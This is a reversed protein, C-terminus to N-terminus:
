VGMRKDPQVVGWEVNRQAWITLLQIHGIQVGEREDIGGRINRLAHWDTIQRAVEMDAAVPLASIDRIQAMIGDPYHVGDVLRDDAM